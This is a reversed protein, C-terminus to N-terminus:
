VGGVRLRHTTAGHGSRAPRCDVRTRSDQLFGTPIERLDRKNYTMEQEIIFSCTRTSLQYLTNLNSDTYANNMGEIINPTHSEMESAVISTSM